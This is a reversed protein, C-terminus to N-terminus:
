GLRDDARGGAFTLLKRRGRERRRSRAGLGLPHPARLQRRPLSALDQPAQGVPEALGAAARSQVECVGWRGCRSGWTSMIWKVGRAQPRQVLTRQAWAGARPARTAM